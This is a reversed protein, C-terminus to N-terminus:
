SGVGDQDNRNYSPARKELAADVGEALDRSYQLTHTMWYSANLSGMLDSHWSARLLHKTAELAKRPQNAIKSALRLAGAELDADPIVRNVIGFDLAQAADLLDGTFALEAARGSGVLRPLFWAGGNGPALGLKIYSEGFRAAEGAVRMDCALALDFGGATAAGNVAAITPVRFSALRHTVPHLVRANFPEERARLETELYAKMANLDAGSCFHKGAGTMILCRVGTETDLEDLAAMLDRSMEPVVGNGSDPRNLTIRAVGDAPRELLITEFDTM